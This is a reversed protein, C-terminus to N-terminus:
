EYLNKEGSQGIKELRKISELAASLSRSLFSQEVSLGKRQLIQLTSKVITLPTRWEHNFLESRVYLDNTIDRQIGIFHSVRGDFDFVPSVSLENIFYAGDKRYNRLKVSYVSGSSIASCLQTLAPQKRDDRQLFRCNRGLIEERSYGSLREFAGNCYIIPDDEKTHDAIIFSTDAAEVADALLKLNSTPGFPLM